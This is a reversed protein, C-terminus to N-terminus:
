RRATTLASSHQGTARHISHGGSVVVGFTVVGVPVGGDVGDLGGVVVGVTTM